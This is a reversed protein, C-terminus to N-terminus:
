VIFCSILADAHWTSPLAEPSILYSVTSLPIENQQCWENRSLGSEQFSSIWGAWLDAKSTLNEHM